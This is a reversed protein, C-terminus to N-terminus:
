KAIQQHDWTEPKREKLKSKRHFGELVPLQFGCISLVVMHVKGLSRVKVDPFVEGHLHM